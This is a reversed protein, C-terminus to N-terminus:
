KVKERRGTSWSGCDRCFLRQTKFMKTRRWGRSEVKNSGCAGCEGSNDGLHPHNPIYPLIAKYLEETLEVDGINYERMQKRAAKDGAMVSSWLEFGAHKVKQGIDLLPGIYALKNSQFGLKKVSKYLDVSTVPPPPALGALLFEGMLKRLDFSDSNYGVVADAESILEHARKIMEFHGDTWDSHFHMKRDGIFRAAFCIPASPSILQNLSINQDFLGWVYATAPRTEIDLVLLKAM